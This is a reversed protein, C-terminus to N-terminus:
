LGAPTEDEPRRPPLGGTQALTPNRPRHERRKRHRHRHERHHLTGGPDQNKSASAPWASRSLTGLRKIKKRRFIIVSLAILAVVIALAIILTYTDGNSRTRSVQPELIDTISKGGMQAFLVPIATLPTNM